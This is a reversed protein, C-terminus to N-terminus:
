KRSKKNRVMSIVSEDSLTTETAAVTNDFSVFDESLIRQIQVLPKWNKSIVGYILSYILRIM